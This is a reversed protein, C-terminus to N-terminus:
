HSSGSAVTSAQLHPHCNHPQLLSLSPSLAQSSDLRQIKSILLTRPGTQQEVTAILEGAEAASDECRAEQRVPPKAKDKAGNGFAYLRSQDQGGEM